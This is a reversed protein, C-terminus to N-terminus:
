STDRTKRKKLRKIGLYTFTKWSFQEEKGKRLSCGHSRNQENDSIQFHSSLVHLDLPSFPIFTKLAGRPVQRSDPM